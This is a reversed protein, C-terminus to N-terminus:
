SANTSVQRLMRVSHFIVLLEAAAIRKSGPHNLASAAVQDFVSHFATPHTPREFTGPRHQLYTCGELAGVPVCEQDISHRGFDFANVTM